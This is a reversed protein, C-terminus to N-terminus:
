FEEQTNTPSSKKEIKLDMLTSSEVYAVRTELPRVNILIEAAM